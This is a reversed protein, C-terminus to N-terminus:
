LRHKTQTIPTLRGMPLESGTFIDQTLPLDMQM